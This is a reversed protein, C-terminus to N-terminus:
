RFHSVEQGATVVTRAVGAGVATARHGAPRVRATPGDGLLASISQPQVRHCSRSLVDASGAVRARCAATGAPRIAPSAPWCRLRDGGAQACMEEANKVAIQAERMAAERQRVVKAAISVEAAVRAQEAAMQLNAQNYRSRMERSRQWDGLGLNKLEWSVQAMVDERTGATSLTPRGAIFDGGSWFTQLTPLLPRYKAQRWQALAASILARNEALEPRTELAVAVLDDLPGAADVLKIPLVTQDAPLLDATPDLMLLQALSASARAAQEQLVLREQRRVQLETRRPQSRRRDQGTREQLRETRDPGDRNGQPHGRRQDGAGGYARLLDLYALAVDLQIDNNVTQARAEAAATAQRTIRPAFIADALSVNLSAGAPLFFANKDTPFVTGLANQILGDHHYFTPLFTPSNPNGGLWLNPIWLIEAQRQVAYAEEVHAQALAITPNAAHALRLAYPLDIPLLRETPSVAARSAHDSPLATPPFTPEAALAGFAAAALCLARPWDANWAQIM